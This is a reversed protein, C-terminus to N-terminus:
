RSCELAWPREQNAVWNNDIRVAGDDCYRTLATWRKLTYDIASKKSAKLLKIM